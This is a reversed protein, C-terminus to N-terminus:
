LRMGNLLITLPCIRPNAEATLHKATQTIKGQGAFRGGKRLAICDALDPYFRPYFVTSLPPWDLIRTFL